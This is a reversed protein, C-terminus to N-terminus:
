FFMVGTKILDFTIADWGRNTASRNTVGRKDKGNSQSSFKSRSFDWLLSSPKIHSSLYSFSPNISTSDISYICFYQTHVMRCFKWIFEFNSLKLILNWELRYEALSCVKHINGM